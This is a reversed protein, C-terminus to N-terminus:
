SGSGTTAPAASGAIVVEAYITYYVLTSLCPPWVLKSLVTANVTGHWLWNRAVDIISVDDGGTRLILEFSEAASTSPRVYRSVTCVYM